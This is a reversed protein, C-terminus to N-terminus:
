RRSRLYAALVSPGGLRLYHWARGLRGADAYSAHVDVFGSPDRMIERLNVRKWPALDELSFTGSSISERYEDAMRELFPARLEPAIRVYNWMYSDYKARLAARTLIGKREDDMGSADVWRLMEAYEDCVAFAKGRSKVSSSANDQRYDVIPESLFVAREAAALVKFAFSADQYSAGPTELFKIGHADLFDRRYMGSWISPKQSFTAPYDVPRVCEGLVERPADCFLERREEADSWYLNFCGKVMDASFRRAADVMHELASPRMLDDSELVAIYEGRSEEIGRNMSAGYGSNEKDVVRIRADRAAYEALIRHSADTSGDNVCVVEFDDISQTLLSELSAGVYAEVNYVPVIVSVLPRASRSGEVNGSWVQRPSAATERHRM